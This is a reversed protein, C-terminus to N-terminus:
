NESKEPAQAKRRKKAKAAKKAEEKELIHQPKPPPTEFVKTKELMSVVVDMSEPRDEKKKAMLIAVLKSFDDTVNPNAGKLPPIGARLHKDLLLDPSTATYPVKGSILEFMLCGFSYIDTREDLTKKRIQEPSIYSRTGSITSSGFSFLKSIGSRKRQAISFDILKSNGKDDLLYNDPKVDLHLWGQQHIYGLGKAGTLIIKEAFYSVDEPTDRIAMKMNRSACFELVLYPVNRFKEFAYIHIVNAHDFKSAVTYEHRLDAIEKSNKALSEHLVKLVVKRRDMDHIAEWVHCTQSTRLQRVLRYAGIYNRGATAV